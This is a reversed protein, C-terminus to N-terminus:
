TSFMSNSEVGAILLAASDSMTSKLLTVSAVSARSPLRSHSLTCGSYM